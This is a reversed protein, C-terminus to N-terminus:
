ECAIGDNDRDLAARYGPDGRHLPAKGAAKVQTCNKYYVNNMEDNIKPAPTTTKPEAAPAPKDDTNKVVEPHYGDERAYNDISWIALKQQKASAEIKRFDDVYKTNPEIIYAVRALGKALEMKQVMRGQDECLNKTDSVKTPCAPLFVYALLRNYKDRGKGLELDVTAQGDFLQKVFQEAEPGYPQVPKDPHHTEPTDVLLFRVDETKGEYKIKITDGDIVSLLPVNIAKTNKEESTKAAATDPQMKVLPSTLDPAVAQDEVTASEGL